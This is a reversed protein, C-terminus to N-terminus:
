DPSRYQHRVARRQVYTDESPKVQDLQKTQEIGFRTKGWEKRNTDDQGTGGNTLIRSLISMTCRRVVLHVLSKKFPYNAFNYDGRQNRRWGVMEM